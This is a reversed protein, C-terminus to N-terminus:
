IINNIKLKILVNVYFGLPTIAIFVNFAKKISIAAIREINDKYKVYACFILKLKNNAEISNGNRQAYM